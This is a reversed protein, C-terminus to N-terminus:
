NVIRLTHKVKVFHTTAQLHHAGRTLSSSMSASIWNQFVTVSFNQVNVGASQARQSSVQWSRRASSDCFLSSSWM